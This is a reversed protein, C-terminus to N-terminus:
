LELHRNAGSFFDSRERFPASLLWFDAQRAILCLITISHWVFTYFKCLLLPQIYFRIAQVVLSVDRLGYPGLRVDPM